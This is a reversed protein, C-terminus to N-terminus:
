KCRELMETCIRVVRHFEAVELLDELDQRIWRDLNEVRDLKRQADEWEHMDHSCPTVKFQEKMAVM